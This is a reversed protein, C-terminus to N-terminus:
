QKQYLYTGSNVFTELNGETIYEYWNGSGNEPMSLFWTYLKSNGYAGDDNVVYFKQGDIRTIVGGVVAKDGSRCITRLGSVMTGQVHLLFGTCEPEELDAVFSKVKDGGPFAAVPSAFLIAAILSTSKLM